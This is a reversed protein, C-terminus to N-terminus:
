DKIRHLYSPMWTYHCDFGRSKYRASRGLSCTNQDKNRFYNSGPKWTPSTPKWTPRSSPSCSGGAASGWSLTGRASRLSYRTILVCCSMYSQEKKKTAFWPCVIFNLKKGLSAIEDKKYTAFLNYIYIQLQFNAYLYWLSNAIKKQM